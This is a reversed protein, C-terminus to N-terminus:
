AMIDVANSVQGAAIDMIAEQAGGVASALGYLAQTAQQAADAAAATVANNAQANQIAPTYAPMSSSIQMNIVEQQDQTPQM